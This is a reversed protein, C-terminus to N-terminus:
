QGYKNLHYKLGDMDSIGHINEGFFSLFLYFLMALSIWIVTKVVAQRSKIIRDHKNFLGLDITLALAIFILFFVFYYFEGNNMAAFIANSLNQIDQLNL